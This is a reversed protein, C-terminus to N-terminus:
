PNPLQFHGVKSAKPSKQITLLIEEPTFHVSLSKSERLAFLNSFIFFLISYLACHDSPTVFGRQEDLCISTFKTKPLM